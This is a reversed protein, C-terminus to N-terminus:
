AATDARYIHIEKVVSMITFTNPGSMVMSTKVKGGAHVIPKRDIEVPSTEPIAAAEPQPGCSYFDLDPFLDLDSFLVPNPIGDILDFTEAPEYYVTFDLHVHESATGIEYVIQRNTGPKKRM